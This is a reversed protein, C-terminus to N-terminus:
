LLLNFVGMAEEWHRTQPNKLDPEIITFARALAVSVGGFIRPLEADTEDSCALDLAPRAALDDLTPQLDIEADLRKWAHICEQLGKTIPLDHPQIVDRGNATAAAEGRLLLDYLKQNVFDVCRQLDTKDVDLQAALRFLRELKSIGKVDLM